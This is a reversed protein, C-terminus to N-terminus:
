IIAAEDSGEERGGEGNRLMVVEAVEEEEEGDENVNGEDRGDEISVVFM